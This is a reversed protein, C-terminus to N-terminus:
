GEGRLHKALFINYRDEDPDYPTEMIAPLKKLFPDKIIARIGKLGINGKGLSEHRDIKSGLPTRCDNLHLLKLSDGLKREVEKSFEKVKEESSLDYGAAFLHCTDLCIGIKDRDVERRLVEMEELSSCMGGGGGPTNEVLIMATGEHSETLRQLASTLRELGVDWGARKHSGAHVIVFDVGAETAYWLYESLILLSKRYIEEEPSALNLLYPSHIAIPYVDNDRLERVYWKLDEPNRSIKWSLPSSILTQITECGLEVAYDLAEKFGRDIKM